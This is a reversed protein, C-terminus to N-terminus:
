TGMLAGTVPIVAGSVYDSDASALFAHVGAVDEPKGAYGLAILMVAMQRTPEPIGVDSDETKAQTLRTEIFGPAVANANIHFPGLERALTRMLGVVGGKAATYNAQGPNGQLFASSTTFSLKRHFAPKGQTSMEEKAKARMHQVAALSSHFATKLNVDLVFNWLEDDHNPFTKDRTIGANNVVIDLGGFADAATQVLAEPVGEGTLDGGFAITEGGIEAAAQEALDADLDNILVRAGHATLLEAAARGIGRGSGTVIAGKGDLVGM